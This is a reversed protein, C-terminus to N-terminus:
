NDDSSSSSLYFADVAVAAAAPAVSTPQAGRASTTAKAPVGRLTSQAQPASQSTSRPSTQPARQPAPAVAPSRQEAAVKVTRVVLASPTGPPSDEKEERMWMSRFSKM